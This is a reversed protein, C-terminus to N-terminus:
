RAGKRRRASKKVRLKKKESVKEKERVREKEWGQVITEINYLRIGSFFKTRKRHM